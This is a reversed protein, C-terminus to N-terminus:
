YNEIFNKVHQLGEFGDGFKVGNIILEYIYLGSVKRFTNIVTFEIGNKMYNTITLCKKM